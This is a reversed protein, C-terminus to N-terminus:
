PTSIKEGVCRKDNPRPTPYIDKKSQLGKRFVDHTFREDDFKHLGNIEQKYDDMSEQARWKDKQSKQEWSETPWDLMMTMVTSSKMIQVIRVKKRDQGRMCKVEEEETFRIRWRVDIGWQRWERPGPKPRAMILTKLLGIEEILRNKNELKSGAAWSWSGKVWQFNCDMSVSGKWERRGADELGYAKLEM